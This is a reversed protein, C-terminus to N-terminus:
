HRTEKAGRALIWSFVWSVPDHPCFLVTWVLMTGLSPWRTSMSYSM